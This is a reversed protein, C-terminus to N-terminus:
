KKKEEEPEDNDTKNKENPFESLPAKKATENKLAEAFDTTILDEKRNDDPVVADIDIVDKTRQVAGDKQQQTNNM